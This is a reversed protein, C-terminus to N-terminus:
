HTFAVLGYSYLLPKNLLKCPLYKSIPRKMAELRWFRLCVSQHHVSMSIVFLHISARIHRHVYPHICENISVFVYMDELEIFWLKGYDWHSRIIWNSIDSGLSVLCQMYVLLNTKLSKYKLSTPCIPDTLSTPCIPDTLRTPCIPDTMVSWFPYFPRGYWFTGM